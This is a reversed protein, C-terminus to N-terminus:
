PAPQAFRRRFDLPTVSNAARFRRIFYSSTSFGTELAIETVNMDTTTLLAEAKKLRVFNLYDSFTRRACQRFFRSFAYYSMGCLRACEQMTIDQAYHQGVYEIVTKLRDMDRQSLAYAEHVHGTERHWHRLIWLTLRCIDARIALEFGFDRNQAERLIDRVRRPVECGALIRAPFFRPLTHVPLRFPLLYQLEFVTSDAAQVLEPEFKVVIYRNNGANLAFIQHVEHANILVMDGASFVVRLENTQLAYQGELGYLIEIYAHMHAHAMIGPGMHAQAHCDYPIWVGDIQKKPENFVEKM